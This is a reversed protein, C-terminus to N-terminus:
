GNDPHVDVFGPALPTLNAGAAATTAINAVIGSLSTQGDTVNSFYRKTAASGMPYGMSDM